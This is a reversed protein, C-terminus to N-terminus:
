ALSPFSSTDLTVAPAAAQAGGGPGRPRYDGGGGRGGGGRGRGRGGSSPSDVPATSFSVDTFQTAKRGSKKSKSGKGGKDDDGITWVEPSDDAAKVKLGKMDIAEAKRAELIVADAKEQEKLKLYDDLTMQAEEKRKAEAAAEIAAKEEETLERSENLDAAGAEDNPTTGADKTGWNYKGSGGRKDEAGDARRGRGTGSHRDFERRPPRRDGHSSKPGDNSSAAAAGSSKAPPAAQKVEKVDKKVPQVVQDDDDGLADFPNKSVASM